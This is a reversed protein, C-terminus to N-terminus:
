EPRCTAMEDLFAPALQTTVAGSPPPPSSSALHQGACMPYGTPAAPAAPAASPSVAAATAPPPPTAAPPATTVPEQPPASDGSKACHTLAGLGVIIMLATRRERKMGTVGMRSPRALRRWSPACRM